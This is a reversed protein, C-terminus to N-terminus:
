RIMFEAASARLAATRQLSNNASWGGVWWFCAAGVAGPLVCYLLSWGISVSVVTAQVYLAVVAGLAAGLALASWFSFRSCRRLLLVAPIGLVIAAAIGFRSVFLLVLFFEGVSSATRGFAAFEAFAAPLGAVLPAVLFAIVRRLVLM